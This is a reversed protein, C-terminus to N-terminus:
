MKRLFHPKENRGRAFGALGIPALAGPGPRSWGPAAGGRRRPAAVVCRIWPTRAHTRLAITTVEELLGGEGADAEPGGAAEGAVGQRGGAAGEGRWAGGRVLVCVGGAAARPSPAWPIGGGGWGGFIDGGGAVPFFVGLLCPCVFPLPFIFLFPRSLFLVALRS